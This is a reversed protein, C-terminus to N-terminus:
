SWPMGRLLSEFIAPNARLDRRDTTPDDRYNRYATVYAPGMGDAVVMIINQPSQTNVDDSTLVNQTASCAALVSVVGAVGLIRGIQM